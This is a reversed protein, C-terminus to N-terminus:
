PASPTATATSAAASATPAPAADHQSPAPTNCALLIATLAIPAVRSLKM